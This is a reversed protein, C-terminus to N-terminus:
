DPGGVSVEADQHQLLVPAGDQQQGELDLRGALRRWRGHYFFLGEFFSLTQCRSGFSGSTLQPCTQEVRIYISVLCLQLTNRFVFNLFAAAVVLRTVM